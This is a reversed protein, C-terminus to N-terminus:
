DAKNQSLVNFLKATSLKQAKGLVMGARVTEMAENSKKLRLQVQAKTAYQDPHQHLTIAREAWILATELYEPGANLNFLEDVMTSIEYAMTKQEEPSVTANTTAYSKQFAQEALLFYQPLDKLGRAYTLDVFTASREIEPKRKGQLQLLAAQKKKVNALGAQNGNQILSSLSKQLTLQLNQVVMTGGLSSWDPTPLTMGKSIIEDYLPDMIFDTKLSWLALHDLAVPIQDKTVAYYESLLAQDRLQYQERKMNYSALLEADRQGRQYREFLVYLVSDQQLYKSLQNQIRRKNDLEKRYAQDQMYRYAILPQHHPDLLTMVDDLFPEAPRFGIMKKLEAGDSPNIFLVTPYSGVRYRNAFGPGEGKEADIKYNIFHQNFYAGVASDTFTEATLRKCPGCWTTFVDVFLPKKQELAKQTVEALTGSEFHIGTQASLTTSFLAFLFILRYTM